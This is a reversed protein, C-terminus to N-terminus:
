TKEQLSLRRTELTSLVVDVSILLMGIFFSPRFTENLLLVGLVASFMPQLPYFLSCTSAPLVALSSTWTFQALGSGILGLYLLVLASRPTLGTGGSRLAAYIGCPIHFLLSIMMGYATVLVPPYKTTLRRMNVSALGWSLVSLLVLLVGMLESQGSAGSTIIVTGLIALVLCVVKVATIREKLIVAAFITVSVPTMANILAATSAGTLSIGVQILFITMFYGLIGVGLFYKRDERAIKIHLYRRSMLLLPFVAIVCRLCAVLPAPVESVMKGGVYVSGWLFFTVLLLLFARSKKLFEM